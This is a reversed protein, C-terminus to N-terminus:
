SFNLCHLMWFLSLIERQLQQPNKIWSGPGVILRIMNCLPLAITRLYFFAVSDLLINRPKNGSRGTDFCLTTLVLLLKGFDM